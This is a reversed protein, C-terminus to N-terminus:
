HENAKADLCPKCLEDNFDYCNEETLVKNCKICAQTDDNDFLERLAAMPSDGFGVSSEQLNVFDSRVACWQNGDLFINFQIEVQM